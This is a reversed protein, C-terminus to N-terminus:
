APQYNAEQLAKDVEQYFEQVTLDMEGSRDAAQQLRDTLEFRIKLKQELRFNFDLFDISEFELDASLKQEPQISAAEIGLTESLAQLFVPYTKDQDM